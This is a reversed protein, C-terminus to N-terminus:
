TPAPSLRISTPSRSPSLVPLPSGSRSSLTEVRPPRASPSLQRRETPSLSQPSPRPPTAYERQLRRLEDLDVLGLCDAAARMLPLLLQQSHKSPLCRYPLSGDADVLLPSAAAFLAELHSEATLPTAPEAEILKRLCDFFAHGLAMEADKEAEDFSPPPPKRQEWRELVLKWLRLRGGDAAGMADTTEHWFSPRGHLLPSRSTTSKAMHSVTAPAACGAGIAGGVNAGSTSGTGAVVTSGRRPAPAITSAHKGM